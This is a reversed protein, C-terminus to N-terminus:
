SIERLEPQQQLLLQRALLTAGDLANGKAPVIAQQLAPKLIAKSREALGGLLVVPLQRQGQCCDLHASIAQAQQMLLQQALPDTQHEFVLPALAAFDSATAQKLWPLLQQPGQGCHRALSQCLPSTIGQDSDVQWLLQRVALRGLWAGGGEDGINFGWGGVQHEAGDQELRMSVSGTGLALVVVPQGLNAGYLSIKADTTLQWTAFPLALQETFAQHLKPNGAGALGMVAVVDSCDIAAQQCLELCLARVNALALAYNNTLQAPGGSGYWCQGSDAATLRAQTKTGGGDVALLYM